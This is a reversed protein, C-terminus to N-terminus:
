PCMPGAWYDVGIAIDIGNVSGDGNIDASHPNCGPFQNGFATPDLVALVFAQVDAFDRDGDCDVDGACAAMREFAGLDSAAGSVTRPVGVQHKQYQQNIAGGPLVAPNLGIAVDICASGGALAFDQAAFDVFGPSAGTITTGDDNITGTVGGFSGVYGPKFWNRKLDLVGSADLLALANGGTIVYVINNRADCHEDNTSLRMLTTSDTRTSIVTNHYFYLNGKRYDALSGSDGGYHLIQKNGAGAPEILINGYVDTKRYAPDDRILTSDEADVLDLQRNGSEIWNYRVVLGASRDKLNNGGAGSLLPGFRNYQYVIGIAATYTNHEFISGSNGNNHIYNNEILIDRSVNEGASSVFLGNGSDRIICNRIVIHEGLEIHIAAGNQAYTQVVGNDGTFTNPSRAGRVDLGEIVIWRAVDNSPVNSGGIKIVSRPENWYNLPAPTTANEGDIIPRQGAPGPVGRVSIPASSTGQRGIVWKERYPAARWHIWVTDGPQLTAWPAAGITALPQGDGVHYDAALIEHSGTLFVLAALNRIMQSRLNSIQSKSALRHTLMISGEQFIGTEPLDRCIANWGM